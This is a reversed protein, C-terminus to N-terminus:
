RRQLSFDLRVDVDGVDLEWTAARLQEHWTGIVYRGPPLGALRFNGEEDTVTVFPHDSVAVWASMWPFCADSVKFIEPRPFAKEFTAGPPLGVNFEPNDFALGHANHNFADRNVLEVKQRALVTLVHPDFRCGAMEMRAPLAPPDLTRPAGKVVRVIAWRVEGNPGVVFDDSLVGQPHLEVCRADADM